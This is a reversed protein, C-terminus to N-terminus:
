FRDRLHCKGDSGVPASHGFMARGSCISGAMSALIAYFTQKKICLRCKAWKFGVVQLILIANWMLYPVLITKFRSKMKNIYVNKSFEDVRYFLLFGSMVFFASVSVRSIIHSFFIRVNDYIAMGFDPSNTLPTGFSHIYIVLLALPFRLWTITQSQLEDNKGGLQSHPMMESNNLVLSPINM